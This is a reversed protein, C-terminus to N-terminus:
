KRRGGTANSKEFSRCAAQAVEWGDGMTYIEQPNWVTFFSGGGQFYLADQLNGLTILHDPMIFRGSDDFPIRAFGHLQTSRKEFDFDLGRKIANDEERLLQAALEGERSLGFGVLCNWRDHKTLCLIKGDSSDRVQNRFSSPLVYRGKEGRLSFDQGSYIVPQGVV